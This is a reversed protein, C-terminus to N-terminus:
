PIIVMFDCCGCVDRCLWRVKLADPRAFTISAGTLIPGHLDLMQAAIHSLPLFSILSDEVTVKLMQDIVIKATWVANDHTIM